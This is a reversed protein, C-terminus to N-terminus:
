LELDSDPVDFDDTNIIHISALDIRKNDKTDEEPAEAELVSGDRIDIQVKAGRELEEILDKRARSGERDIEESDRLIQESREALPIVEWEDVKEEAPAVEQPALEWSMDITDPVAKVDEPPAQFDPVPPANRFEHDEALIEAADDIGAAQGWVMPGLCLMIVLFSTLMMMMEAGQM